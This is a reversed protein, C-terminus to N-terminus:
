PQREPKLGGLGNNGETLVIEMHEIWVMHDDEDQNGRKKKQKGKIIAARLESGSVLVGRLIEGGAKVPEPVRWDIKVSPHKMLPKCMRREEHEFHDRKT